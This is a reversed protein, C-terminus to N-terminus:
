KVWRWDEWRNVLGAKVPNQRIYHMIRDSQQPSRSWHDFWEVQWFRMGTRGLAENARRATLRKFRRVCQTMTASLPTFFWHVHNPMVAHSHIRWMGSQEYGAFGDVVIEAIEPEGLWATKGDRDQHLSAELKRFYERVKPMYSGHDVNSLTADMEKRIRAPITGALRVTVFYSGDVVEWHPLRGRWFSTTRIETM